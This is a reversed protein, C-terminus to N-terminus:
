IKIKQGVYIKNKDKINNKNVLYSITKNYKKAIKTLTDGKKVIYIIEDKNINKIKRNVIVQIDNYNYGNETLRKQREEGNGWKGQIVENAIEENSKKNINSIEKEECNCMCYSIDVNGSIGSVKGKFTYQWLDVKYKSTHSSKGNIEAWWIKYDLLRNIDLKNEFWFKNAYVGVKYGKVKFFNCFNIAIDTLEKKSLNSIQSDEMDIFIPLDIKLDKIINYIYNAGEIVKEVSNCYNYIYIGVKIDNNKCDIYNRDFYSDKTHNNKNGIWGVRLIAKEIGSNKVKSFDIKGQHQSVDIVQKM